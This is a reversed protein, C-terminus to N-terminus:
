WFKDDNGVAEFVGLAGFTSAGVSDMVAEGVGNTLERLEEVFNQSKYNICYQGMKCRWNANKM